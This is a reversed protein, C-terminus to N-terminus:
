FERVLRVGARPRVPEGRDKHAGLGFQVNVARALRQHVQPMVLVHGDRGGLYNVELGLVRDDSADYFTSHNLIAANRGRGGGAAIDSLGAMSVSSWRRDFRHAVMYALSSSYRRHHRDYIGLYQVGHASRGENFTGFAGQLGLKLEALRRGEFPLEVEVALGDAFAYEVEPAWGVTREPGSLPVMALTNAELEGQRAGLPRMMDFVMPEPVHPYDDARAFPCLWVSLALCAVHGAVRGLPPIPM